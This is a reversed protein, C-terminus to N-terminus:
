THHLASAIYVIDFEEDHFPLDHFDAAVRRVSRSCVLGLEHALRHGRALTDASIDTLTVKWGHEAALLDGTVHAYAAVELFAISASPDPVHSLIKTMHDRSIAELSPDLTASHWLVEGLINVFDDDIQM